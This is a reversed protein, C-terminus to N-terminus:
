IKVTSSDALSKSVQAGEIAHPRDLGAHIPMAVAPVPLARPSRRLIGDFLFAIQEPKKAPFRAM